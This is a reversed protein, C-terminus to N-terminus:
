WLDFAIQHRMAWNCFEAIRERSYSGAFEVVREVRRGNPGMLVADPVRPGPVLGAELADEGLWREALLPENV